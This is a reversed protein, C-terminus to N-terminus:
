SVDWVRSANADSNPGSSVRLLAILEGIEVFGALAWCEAETKIKAVLELTSLSARRFTRENREKWLMWATLLVVADIGKRHAKAVSRRLRSWWDVITIQGM